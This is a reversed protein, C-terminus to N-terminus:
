VDGWDICQCSYDHGGSLFILKRFVGKKLLQNIAPRILIEEQSSGHITGFVVCGCNISYLLADVDKQGGIEDVAIVQPALSRVAMLMGESKPCNDLVDTRTGIHNQPVGKFSAALESREDIVCVNKGTLITGDSIQRVMDRLLTTKGCGPPSIILTHELTQNGCVFGMVNDACGIIEHAVRICLFTIKSLMKVREGEMVVHGGIGIRHGGRITIFGQRLNDEYSYLSYECAKEMIQTIQGETIRVNSLTREENQYKIRVCQNVRIRIEKLHQYEMQDFGMQKRLEQSFICRIEDLRDKTFTKDNDMVMGHVM